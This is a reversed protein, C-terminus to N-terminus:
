NKDVKNFMFRSLHSSYENMKSMLQEVDKDQSNPFIEKINKQVNAIHDIAEKYNGEAFNESMVKLGQNLVAIAYLKKQEAELILEIKGEKPLWKLYVKEIKEVYNLKNPDFYTMKIIIPSKEIQIKVDSVCPSLLSIFEKQFVSEINKKCIKIRRHCAFKCM